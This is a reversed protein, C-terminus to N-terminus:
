RLSVPTGPPANLSQAANGMNVAIELMQSSGILALTQGGAVDAYTNRIPGIQHNGVTVELHSRKTRAATLDPESINTILNGFNDILMIEGDITGDSNVQPRSINLVEIQDIVPGLQDMSVGRSLHAAVPAIIDRGHFTSSLEGAFFRRNEVARIEELDADRHLLTILGNDPAIVIRENYRAAIIRRSLGVTPDIVAACITQPPFYPFSQRLVFAAHLLDQANIEHTIDVITVKPNIQLIMGKMAAVYHDRTGFDTMLTIVSM